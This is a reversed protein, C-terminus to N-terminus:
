KEYTRVYLLYATFVVSLDRLVSATTRWKSLGNRPVSVVDGPKLAPLPESNRGQLYAEVDVHIVREERPSQTASLGTSAVDYSSAATRTITVGSMRALSTGGGAKSLLEMVNTDDPVRYEGPRTVEGLVHVVMELRREEGLLYDDTQQGVAAGPLLLALLLTWTL